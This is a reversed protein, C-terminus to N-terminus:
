SLDVLSKSKFSIKEMEGQNIRSFRNTFTSSRQFLASFLLTEFNNSIALSTGSCLYIALLARVTDKCTDENKLLPIPSNM